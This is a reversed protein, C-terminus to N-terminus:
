PGSSLRERRLVVWIVVPAGLLATVANLPLVLQSGPVQAVLDAVLAVMAGLLATAPLLPRHDATRLLNRALHPVALGIFGVPGCFATVTGALLATSLILLLRTRRVDLGLSRAYLEGLLLANLSKSLLFATALGIVLAPIFIPMQSWTVDSFTGFTWNIYAQVREAISFYMLLSVVASVAYGFMLGLILLTMVQQVRAAVALVLILALAAGAFAAATLGLDGFLGFGALLAGGVTGYALVVLAVGLSAGANVGLVFPDALANRFLTQMQLGSVGLAAGALLATLTKPLRFDRVIDIWSARLSTDGGLIRLVDLLPIQVSGVLLSLILIGALLGVLILLALTSRDPSTM